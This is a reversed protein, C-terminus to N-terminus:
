AHAPASTAVGAWALTQEQQVGVTWVSLRKLTLGRMDPTQITFICHTDGSVTDGAM